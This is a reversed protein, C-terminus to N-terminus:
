AYYCFASEMDHLKPVFVLMTGSDWLFFDAVPALIILHKHEPLHHSLIVSINVAALTKTVKAATKNQRCELFFAYRQREFELNFFSLM